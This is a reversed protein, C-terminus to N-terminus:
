KLTIVVQTSSTKHPLELQRGDSGYVEIDPKLSKLFNERDKKKNNLKDLELLIEEYDADQCVTYDYKVGTERISFKANQKEFSKGYKEAEELVADKILEDSKLTKFLQELASVQAAFLLPDIEGDLVSNRILRSYNTIQEKTEPLKRFISIASEEM